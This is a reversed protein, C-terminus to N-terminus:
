FIVILYDIFLFLSVCSSYQLFVWKYVQKSCTEAMCDPVTDCLYVFSRLIISLPAEEM